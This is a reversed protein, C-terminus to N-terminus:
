EIISYKKNLHDIILCYALCLGLFLILLFEATFWYHFPFGIIKIDTLFSQNHILYLKMIDSIQNKYETLAKRDIEDTIEYILVRMLIHDKELDLYRGFKESIVASKDSFMLKMNILDENDAKKIKNRLGSLESIEKMLSEKEEPPILQYIVFNLVSSLIEKHKPKISVNKGLVALLTKSFERYDSLDASENEIKNWIKEFSFYIKEPTSKEFIKLAIQFGFVSVAWIIIFIMIVNRVIRARTTSPKFFNITKDTTPTSM